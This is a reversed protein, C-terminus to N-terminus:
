NPSGHAEQTAKAMHCIGLKEQSAFLTLAVTNLHRVVPDWIAQKSESFLTGLVDSLPQCKSVGADCRLSLCLGQGHRLSFYVVWGRPM